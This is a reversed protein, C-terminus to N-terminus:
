RTGTILRERDFALSTVRWGIGDLILLAGAAAIGFALTPRIVNLAILAAVAAAPLSAFIGLQQAVRVDQSRASITMAIWISLLAVLPTFVVQALLDPGSILASAIAQHAFLEVILLFIGFVAYAVVLSPVLCAIAKGLLLEERRIPTTLIPELTAQQREGVVSYAGVLAPVIAPIILLYILVHEHSLGGSASSALTLVAILPQVMALVPVGAMTVVILRNRIFERLEKRIIARVRRRSISM